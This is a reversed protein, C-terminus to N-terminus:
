NDDRLRPEVKSGGPGTLLTQLSAQHSSNLQALALDARQKADAVQEGSDVREVVEYYCKLKPETGSPRVIVRGGGVLSFLLVDSPPLGLAGQKLDVTKEVAFDGITQPPQSRLGEMLQNMATAGEAGPLRLSTQATVFVGHARYLKDLRQWVTHGLGKDHAVLDCFAVAASIGDKDRVIDSVSYGIAEEYGLLLRGGEEREHEIAANAIWKFGTLTRVIPISRADAMAQLLGSSVITNALLVAQSSRQDLLYDALLCGIQDGTLLRYGGDVGRCAVALRDADPDNALVVDADVREALAMVNDMAGDEEPNPFRVTPFSGDPHEQSPEVFLRDFGAMALAQVVVSCGVGHLPTYAIAIPAGPKKAVWGNRASALSALYAAVTSEGLSRSLATDNDSPTRALQDIPPVEGIRDAIGRDHPPIIQAGNGWFLKYGNYERPNHSATIMIGACARHHLVAFAVIPTPVFDDALWVVFNMGRLVEAVDDAFRRSMTRCDYGVVVGRSRAQDVCELLYRGLGATTQMVVKRNMCGPGPGVVGRLGATGFQLRGGFHDRLGRGGDDIMAQVQRRTDPDPDDEMWERARNVLELDETAM